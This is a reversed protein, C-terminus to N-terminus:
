LRTAISRSPPASSHMRRESPGAGVRGHGPQGRGMDVGQINVSNFTMYHYISLVVVTHGIREHGVDHM